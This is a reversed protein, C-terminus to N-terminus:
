RLRPNARVERAEVDVVESDDTDYTVKPQLEKCTQGDFYWRWQAGEEGTMDIYSGREVFPAIVKFLKEEDGLKEHKFSISVIDGQLNRKIPWGWEDFQEEITDHALLDTPQVWHFSEGHDRAEQAMAKISRFVHVLNQQKITFRSDVQRGCYGM